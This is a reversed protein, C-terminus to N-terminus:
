DLVIDPILNFGKVYKESGGRASRRVGEVLPFWDKFRMSSLCNAAFKDTLEIQRQRLTTVGARM